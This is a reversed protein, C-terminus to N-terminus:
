SQNLTIKVRQLSPGFTRQVSNIKSQPNQQAPLRLLRSIRMNEKKMLSYGEQKSSQAHTNFTLYTLLSLLVTKIMTIQVSAEHIQM